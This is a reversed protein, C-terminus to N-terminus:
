PTVNVETDRSNRTIGSVYRIDIVHKNVSHSLWM